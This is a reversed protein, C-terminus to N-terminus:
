SVLFEPCNFVMQMVGCARYYSWGEGWASTKAFTDIATKTQSSVDHLGALSLAMEMATASTGEAFLKRVNPNQKAPPTADATGDAEPGRDAWAFWYSFRSWIVLHSPHLWAGDWGSVDPPDIPNQRMVYSTWDFSWDTLDQMGVTKITSVLLEVPSKVRNGITADALFEPRHAIHSILANLNGSAGWASAMEDLAANSPDYGILERYMRKPVFYKFSDHAAIATMVTPLKAAGRAAGLFTKSGSDWYNADYYVAGTTWDMRYGTLSRAIEKIDSELYNDAGTKPHTVGLSFLEMLERALNENAHPPESFVGTLYKQMPGTNAVDELLARYSAASPWARLRNHHEKIDAYQVSDNTGVVLLGALIWSVREQMQGPSRAMLEFLRTLWTNRNSWADPHDPPLETPWAWDAQTTTPRALLNNILTAAGGASVAADV